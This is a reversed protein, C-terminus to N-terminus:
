SKVEVKRFEAVIWAGSEITLRQHQEDVFPHWRSTGDRFMWVTEGSEAAVRRVREATAAEQWTKFGPPGQVTARLHHIEAWLLAVDECNPEAHEYPLAVEARHLALAEARWHGLAVLEDGADRVPDPSDGVAIVELATRLADREGTSANARGADYCARAFDMVEMRPMALAGGLDRASPFQPVEPFGIRDSM